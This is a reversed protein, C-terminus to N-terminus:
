SNIFKDMWQYVQACEEEVLSNLQMFGHVMGTFTKLEVSVGANKLTDAYAYAEDQLPDCDAVILLTSPMGSTAPMYLPSIQRREEGHQLYNEFYWAIGAKELLFGTQYTDISAQNMTYDLSPYVLIQKSIQPGNNQQSASLTAALAGGASDGALIIEDNFQIGSLLERYHTLLFKCDDIAAPYPHEPALRYDLTIVTSHTFKAMKRSIADYCELDGCMHGGGHLHLIVPLKQTPAPSYIRFPIETRTAASIFFSGDSVYQIEPGEGSMASLNQMNTRAIEPTPQISNQLAQQRALSVKELFATLKTSVSNAM